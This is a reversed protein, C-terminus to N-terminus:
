ENVTIYQNSFDIAQRCQEMDFKAIHCQKQTMGMQRALYQYAEDRSMGGEIHWLKDFAEHCEIRMERLEKNALIGLPNSSVGHCGVHADCRQCVWFLKRHLHRSHPYLWSGKKLEAPKECYPCTVSKM